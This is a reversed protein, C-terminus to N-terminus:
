TAILNNIANQLNNKIKAVIIFAFHFFKFPILTFPWYKVREHYNIANEFTIRFLYFFILILQPFRHVGVIISTHLDFKKWSITIPMRAYLKYVSTPNFGVPKYM